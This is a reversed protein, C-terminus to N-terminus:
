HTSRLRRLRAITTDLAAPFDAGVLSEALEQGRQWAPLASELKAHGAATLELGGAAAERVLDARRLRDLTRSLTSKEMLLLRGLEAPAAGPRNSLAVLLTFQSTGLGLPRLQTEYVQDVARHLLKVRMSLCVGPVDSARPMM